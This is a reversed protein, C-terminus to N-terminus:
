KVIDKFLKRIGKENKHLAPRLYPRPAQNYKRGKSDTGVFGLELRRAYEVNTGVVGTLEKTPQGVGDETKAPSKVKGKAMGSGTWNSSISARLRGTDVAPPQGPASARHIKGGRKKYEEGSGPKMSEKADGEVLHCGVKIADMLRKAVADNVEKGYWKFKEAM